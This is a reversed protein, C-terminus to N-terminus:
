LAEVFPQSRDLACHFVTFPKNLAVGVEIENGTMSAYGRFHHLSVYAYQATILDVAQKMSTAAVIVRKQRGDKGGHLSIGWVKLKDREISM